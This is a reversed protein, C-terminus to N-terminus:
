EYGDIDQATTNTASVTTREEAEAIPRSAEGRSLEADIRDRIRGEMEAFYSQLNWALKHGGVRLEIGLGLEAKRDFEPAGEMGTVERLTETLRRENEAGLDFVSHIQAREDDSRVADTLLQRREDELARLRDQFVRVVAQELDADALDRLARGALDVTEHSVREALEKLFTERERRLAARWQSELRDVEARAEEIMERRRERAAEEAEAIKEERASALEEIKKRYQTAEAEAAERKERAEEFQDAIRQQRESMATTIPGYLFRRLLWVLLLFNAIQAGFTFWNIEM